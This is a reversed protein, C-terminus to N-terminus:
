PDKSKKLRNLSRGHVAKNIHEVSKARKTPFATTVPTSQHQPELTMRRLDAVGNEPTRFLCFKDRPNDTLFEPTLTFNQPHINSLDMASGPEPQPSLAVEPNDLLQSAFLGCSDASESQSCDSYFVLRYKLKQPDLVSDEEKGSTISELDQNPNAVRDHTKADPKALGACLRSMDSPKYSEDAFDATREDQSIKSDSGHCTNDRSLLSMDSSRYQLADARTSETVDMNTMESAPMPTSPEVRIEPPDMTRVPTIAGVIALTDHGVQGANPKTLGEEDAEFANNIPSISSAAAMKYYHEEAQDTKDKLILQCEHLKQRLLRNEQELYEIKQAMMKHQTDADLKAFCSGNAMMPSSSDFPQGLSLAPNVLGQVARSGLASESSQDALTLSVQGLASLSLTHDVQIS